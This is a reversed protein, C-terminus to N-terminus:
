DYCSELYRYIITLLPQCHVPTVGVCYPGLQLIHTNNSEGTVQMTATTACQGATPSFTNNDNESAPVLRLLAGYATINNNSATPLTGSYCWVTLDLQTFTPTINPNVTVQMTATTACLGCYSYLILLFNEPLM